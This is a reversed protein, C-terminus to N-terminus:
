ARGAAIAAHRVLQEFGDLRSDIAAPAGVPASSAAADLRSKRDRRTSYYALKMRDLEAWPITM